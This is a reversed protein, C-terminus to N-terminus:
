RCEKGVRREESRMSVDGHILSIRAVDPAPGDSKPAAEGNPGNDYDQAWAGPMLMTVAFLIAILFKGRNMFAGKRTHSAKIKRVEQDLTEGEHRSPWWVTAGESDGPPM